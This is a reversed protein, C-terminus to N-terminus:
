GQEYTHNRYQADSFSKSWDSSLRPRPRSEWDRRGEEALSTSTCQKRESERERERERERECVCVCVCASPQSVSVWGGVV